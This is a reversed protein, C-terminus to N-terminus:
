LSSASKSWHRVRALSWRPMWTTRIAEEYSSGSCLKSVKGNRRKQSQKTPADWIESDVEYGSCRRPIEGAGEFDSKAPEVGDVTSCQM